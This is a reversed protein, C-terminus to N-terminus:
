PSAPETIDSWNTQEDRALWCTIPAAKGALNEMVLTLPYSTLLQDYDHIEPTNGEESSASTSLSLLLNKAM